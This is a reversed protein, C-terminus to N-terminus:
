VCNTEHLHSYNKTTIRHKEPLAAHLKSAHRGKQLGPKGSMLIIKEVYLYITMAVTWGLLALVPYLIGM